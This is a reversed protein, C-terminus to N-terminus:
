AVGSLQPSITYTKVVEGNTNRGKITPNWWYTGIHRGLLPFDETYRKFHGRVIHIRNHWKDQDEITETREEEGFFATINLTKFSIGNLNNQKFHEVKRGKYKIVKCNLVVCFQAIMALIMSATRASATHQTRIADKSCHFASNEYHIGNFPDIAEMLQMAEDIADGKILKCKMCYSANKTAINDEESWNGDIKSTIYWDNLGVRDDIIFCRILNNNLHEIVLSIGFSKDVITVIQFPLKQNKYIGTRFPIEDIHSQFLQKVDSHNMIFKESKHFLNLVHLQMMKFGALKSKTGMIFAITDLHIQKM